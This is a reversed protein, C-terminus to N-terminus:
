MVEDIFLAALRNDRGAAMAFILVAIIADGVLLAPADFAEEGLEFL